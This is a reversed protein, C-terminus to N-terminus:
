LISHLAGNNSIFLLVTKSIFTEVMTVGGHAWLTILYVVPSVQVFDDSLDLIAKFHSRQFHRAILATSALM